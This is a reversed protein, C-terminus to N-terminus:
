CAEWVGDMPRKPSVPQHVLTYLFELSEGLHEPTFGSRLTRYNRCHISGQPDGM